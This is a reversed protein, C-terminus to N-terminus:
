GSITQGAYDSCCPGFAMFEGPTYGSMSKFDKIFHAQDFYGQEVALETLHIEKRVSMIKIIEQFRVIKLFQKPSKGLFAAFKRELSRPSVLLDRSLGSASIMGKHKSILCVTHNLFSFDSPNLPRLKKFLFDEVIKVRAEVSPAIGIREEIERFESNYIDHLNIHTDEIELLPFPFFNCAGSPFFTVAIVGSDGKTSVDAYSSSIGSIFSRPQICTEYPASRTCFPQGYHFMLEINGTPIVRETIEGEAAKAELIWYHKIYRSLIGSPRFFQFNVLNFIQIQLSLSAKALNL